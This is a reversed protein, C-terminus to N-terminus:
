KSIYIEELPGEPIGKGSEMGRAPELIGGSVAGGLDGLDITKTVSVAKV